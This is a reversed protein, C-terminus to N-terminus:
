FVHGKKFQLVSVSTIVTAIALLVGLNPLIDVLPAGRWLVQLFGDMSWYVITGKSITQIYGPMFSTPFWAGGISSMTLILFTGLGNAQSSTKSVASLLMGFSTCAMAAAVLILTLNVFNSMIDIKFLLSGAAFLVILQVFGLSMNYLYKSWLIQVRSIPSALIRLVVGSKKEDFLSSASGTLTFMLFMMAWGGVSRTAWPNSIDKGVIQESEFDLVNKFFNKGGNGAGSPFTGGLSPFKIKGTDIKFYRGVLSRIGNNFEKGSDVGLFRLARRQMGEIFMGPIQSMITQTLVGQIIQMEMDNKPDYYFKLKLGISTDTYADAPIVLAASASGRRVYEQITATDFATENGRDDTYSKVLKFTKTTDLIKEIGAAVSASSANMFALKLNQPGSNLNGFISGWIAILGIPILFTLSVAVRDSWFLRYEKMILALVTRL